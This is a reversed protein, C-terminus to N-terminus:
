YEHIDMEMQNAIFATGGVFTKIKESVKQAKVIVKGPNGSGYGQYVTLTLISHDFDTNSLSILYAGLCGSSNGNIIDEDVGIMPAFMRGWAEWKNEAGNLTFAFCGISDTRECLSRMAPFGPKLKALTEQSKLPILFRNAGPSALMIPYEELLDSSSLDLRQLLEQAIDKEVRSLLVENQEFIVNITGEENYIQVEQIGSQTKQKAMYDQSIGKQTALLFHAAITAHGCNRIEGIPTFFRINIDCDRDSTETVFATHSVPLKGAIAQMQAENLGVANL